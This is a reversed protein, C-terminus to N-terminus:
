HSATLLLHSSVAGENKQKKKLRKMIWLYSPILFADAAIWAAPSAFCAAPFGLVPVLCFGVFARAAM